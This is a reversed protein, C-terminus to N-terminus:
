PNTAAICLTTTLLTVIEASELILFLDNLFINILFIYLISGQTVGIVIELWSSFISDIRIRQKRNTLYSYILKLSDKGFGYASLKAILLDHSICDFAKSLDMLITGVYDSTDLTKQWRQILKLLAHQTSHRKCFGCLLKSFMKEFFPSMQEFLVKEFVKSCTPLISIPRYNSKKTSDDKKFVPSVDGQKLVEPFIYDQISKNVCDSLHNSCNKAAIQLIKTSFPGSSMKTSDLSM